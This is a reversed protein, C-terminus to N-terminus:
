SSKSWQNGLQNNFSVLGLSSMIIIFLWNERIRHFTTKGLYRRNDIELKKFRVRELQAPDGEILTRVRM